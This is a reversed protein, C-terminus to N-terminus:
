SCLVVANGAGLLFEHSDTEERWRDYSTSREAIRYTFSGLGRSVWELLLPRVVEVTRQGATTVAAVHVALDLM